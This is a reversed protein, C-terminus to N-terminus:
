VKPLVRRCSKPHTTLFARDLQPVSRWRSPANSPASLSTFRMAKSKESVKVSVKVYSPRSQYMTLLIGAIQLKPNFKGRVSRVMEWVTPIGENALFHAQVPIICYDLMVLANVTLLEHKLVCDIIIYDYRDRLHELLDTIVRESSRETDDVANYQSLQMVQLQTAADSLRRNAAILDIGATTHIIANQM